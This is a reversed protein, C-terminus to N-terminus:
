EGRRHVPENDAMVLEEFTMHAPDRIEEDSPSGEDGSLFSAATPVVSGAYSGQPAPPTRPTGTESINDHRAEAARADYTPRHFMDRQKLILHLHILFLFSSSSITYILLCLSLVYLDIAM